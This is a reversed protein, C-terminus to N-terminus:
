QAILPPQRKVADGSGTALDDKSTRPSATEIPLSLKRPLAHVTANSAGYPNCAEDAHESGAEEGLLAGRRCGLLTTLGACRGGTAGAAARAQLPKGEGGTLPGVHVQRIALIGIDGEATLAAEDDAIAEGLAVAGGLGEHKLRDARVIQNVAAELTGASILLIRVRQGAAVELPLGHAPFVERVADVM